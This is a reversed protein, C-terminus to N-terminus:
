RIAKKIKGAYEEMEGSDKYEGPQWNPIGCDGEHRPIVHYHIHPVVQGAAKGNAQAVNVGKANLGRIQADVIKRVVAIVKALTDDPTDIISETHARPIVLTHGKSVPGIDMFAIVDNDEYVRTSPLEDGCIRCFICDTAM